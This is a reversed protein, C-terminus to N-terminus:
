DGNINIYALGIKFYGAILNKASQSDIGNISVSKVEFNKYDTKLKVEITDIDLGNQNCLNKMEKELQESVSSLTNEWVASSDVTYKEPTFMVDSQLDINLIFNLSVIIILVAVASRVLKGNKFNETLGAVVTAIIMLICISTGFKFLENM